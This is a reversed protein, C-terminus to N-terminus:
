KVPVTVSFPVPLDQTTEGIAKGSGTGNQVKAATRTEVAGLQAVPIVVDDSQIPGTFCQMEGALVVGAHIHTRVHPCQRKSPPKGPDPRAGREQMQLGFFHRVDELTQGAQKKRFADQVQADLLSIAGLPVEGVAPIV